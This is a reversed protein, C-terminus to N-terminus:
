RSEGHQHSFHSQETHTESSLGLTFSLNWMPKQYCQPELTESTKQAHTGGKYPAMKLCFSPLCKKQGVFYKLFLSTQVSSQVWFKVKTIFSMARHTVWPKTFQQKVFINTCKSDAKIIERREFM